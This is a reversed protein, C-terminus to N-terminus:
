QLQCEEPKIESLLEIEEFTLHDRRLETREEQNM